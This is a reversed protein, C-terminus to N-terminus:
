FSRSSSQPKDPLPNRAEDCTSVIRYVGFQTKSYVKLLDASHKKAFAKFFGHPACLPPSTDDLFGSIIHTAHLWVSTVRVLAFRM